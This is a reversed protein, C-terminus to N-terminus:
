QCTDETYDDGGSAERTADVMRALNGKPIHAPIKVAGGGEGAEELKM